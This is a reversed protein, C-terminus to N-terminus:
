RRPRVKFFWGNVSGNLGCFSRSGDQQGDAGITEVSLLVGVRTVTLREGQDGDEVAVALTNGDPKGRGGAGCVWRGTTPEATNISVTLRGDDTREITVGGEVNRWEGVLGEGPATEMAGLFAVREALLDKLRETRDAPSTANDAVINRVRVFYRQDKDFAEGAQSDLTKGIALFRAAIAVDAKALAPDACIAKEAASQAKACDFSPQAMAVAPAAVFGAAALAALGIRRMHVGIEQRERRFAPRVRHGAGGDVVNM